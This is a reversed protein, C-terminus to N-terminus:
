IDLIGTLGTSSIPASTHQHVVKWEGHRKSFVVTIRNKMERLIAGEKSIAQFHILASAFGLNEAKQTHIMEFEVKVKEEGLSSLWEANKRAWGAASSCYGEDWMDFIVADNDYLSNMLASDKLWAAKQYLTFFDDIEM